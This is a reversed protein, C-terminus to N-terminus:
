REQSQMELLYQEQELKFDEESNFENKLRDIHNQFENILKRFSGGMFASHQKKEATQRYGRHIRMKPNNIRDILAKAYENGQNASLTLYELAKTTDKYKEDYFYIKGLSYQAFQNGQTASQTYFEIAKDTNKYNEETYYIKGLTYQSFENGHEASAIFLEIAKSINKYNDDKYYIKGLTYQAFQNGQAAAQSYFEIAKDTNKYNEESYYIKGLTYQAFQNGQEASLTLYSIAKGIDKYEENAYYIKGLTYQAMDKGKDSLINLWVFAKTKDEPLSNVDDLIIKSLAYKSSDNEDVSALFYEKAKEIDKETGYGNLYMYGIKYKINHDPNKEDIALFNNFAKTFYVTAEKKDLPTGKANQFAEATKYQAFANGADASLKYYYFAKEDNQDVGNGYQYLGGLSFQAYKNNEAKLFYEFAKAYDQETGYGLSNMKGIRYNIYDFLKENNQNGSLEKFGQLAKQFFEQSIEESSDSLFLNKFHMFGVDFIALVNKQQAELSLLNFAKAYDKKIEKTGSLYKKGLKYNKSWDIIFAGDSQASLESEGIFDIEKESLIDLNEFKLTKDFYIDTPGYNEPPEFGDYFDDIQLEGTKGFHIDTPEFNETPELVGVFEIEKESLIDFNEFEEKSFNKMETLLSNGARSYFDDLKNAKFNQYLHREGEGYLRKLKSSYNDLNKEFNDFSEKLQHSSNIISDVCKKVQLKYPKFEKRNYYWLEQKKPLANLLEMFQNQEPKIENKFNPLLVERTLKTLQIIQESGVIKNAVKSKLDDFAKVEITDNKRDVLRKKELISYHIHVNDTNTHIAATWYVNKEDLKKSTSIMECISSRAIEKLKKTNLGMPTLICNEKLFDNDFSTVGIYKPCGQHQSEKELLRYKDIQEECLLDNQIDFIGDSKEDNGMYKYFDKYEDEHQHKILKFAEPRNMYKLYDYGGIKWKYIFKMAFVVGPCGAM